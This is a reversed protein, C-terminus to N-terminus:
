PSDGIDKNFYERLLRDLSSNQNKLEQVTSRLELVEDNLSQNKNELEDIHKHLMEIQKGSWERIARSEAWLETAETDKIRGSLKRAAVLYTLVPAILAIALTIYAPDLDAFIVLVAKM